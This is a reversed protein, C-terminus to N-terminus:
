PSRDDKQHNRKFERTFPEERRAAEMVKLDWLRTTNHSQVRGHGRREDRVEMRFRSSDEHQADKFDAKLIGPLKTKPCQVALGLQRMMENVWTALERKEELTEQPFTKLYDNLSAQITVAMAAKLAHDIEVLAQHREPFSPPLSGFLEQNIKDTWYQDKKKGRPEM